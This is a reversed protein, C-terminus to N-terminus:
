VRSAYIMGVYNSMPNLSMVTFGHRQLIKSIQGPGRKHWEIMYLIAERVLGQRDLRDMIEYESGECDMKVVLERGPNQNRVEGIVRACDEIRVEIMQAELNDTRFISAAEQEIGNIGISGKLEYSYPLNMTRSPFGVGYNFMHVKKQLSGNLELNREAQRYTPDFLEYGYVVEVENKLAFWLSAIGVNMGIDLVACHNPLQFNYCGDVLIEKATLIDQPTELALRLNGLTVVFSGDGTQELAAGATALGLLPDFAKLVWEEVHSLTLGGGRLRLDGDERCPLFYSPDVANKSVTTAWRLNRLRMLCRLFRVSRVVRQYLM